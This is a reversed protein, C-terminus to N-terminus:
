DGGCGEQFQNYYDNLANEVKNRNKKSQHIERLVHVADGPWHTIGSGPWVKEGRHSPSFRDAITHAGRTLEEMAKKHDGEQEAAKAKSLQDQIYQDAKKRADAPDQGPAAMGHQYANAPDEAGPGFDMDYNAKKMAKQIDPSENKGFTDMLNRNHCYAPWLGLPDVTSIPSNNVFGYLNFGGIEEIPDRNLWRQSGPDYFARATHLGGLLIILVLGIRTLNLRLEM